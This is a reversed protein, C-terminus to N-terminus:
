FKCINVIHFTKNVDTVYCMRAWTSLFYNKTSRLSILKRKTTTTNLKNKRPLPSHGRQGRKNKNIQKLFIVGTKSM